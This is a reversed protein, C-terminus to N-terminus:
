KLIIFKDKFITEGNRFYIGYVGGEKKSDKVELIYEGEKLFFKAQIYLSDPTFIKLLTSGPYEVRFRYNSTPSFPNPLHKKMLRDSQIFLNTSDGPNDFSIKQWLLTDLLVMNNKNINKISIVAKTQTQAFTLFFLTIFYFLFIIKKM